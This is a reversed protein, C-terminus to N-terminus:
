APPSPWNINLPDGQDTIDRLAQRYTRWSSKQSSTLPSDAGQTWDSSRMKGNRTARVEKWREETVAEDTIADLFDPSMETGDVSVIVTTGDTETRLCKYEFGTDKCHKALALSYKEFNPNM